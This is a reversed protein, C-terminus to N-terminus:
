RISEEIERGCYKCIKAEKRIVEACYPCRKMIGKKIKEEELKKINPELLLGVIFGILPSFFLSFFFGGTTSRGKNAWFWGVLYCLLIWLFLGPITFEIEEEIISILIGVNVLIGLVIVVGLRAGSADKEYKEEYKREEYEKKVEEKIEEKKIKDYIVCGREGKVLCENSYVLINCKGYGYIKSNDYAHVVSNDHAYVVSNEKAIVVSNGHVTVESNGFCKVREDWFTYEGEKVILYGEEDRELGHNKFIKKIWEM